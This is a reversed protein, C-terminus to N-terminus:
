ARIKDKIKKVLAETEEISVNDVHRQPELDKQQSKKVLYDVVEQHESRSVPIDKKAM